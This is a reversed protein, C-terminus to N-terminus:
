NGQLDTVLCEDRQLSNLLIGDLLTYFRINFVSVTGTIFAPMTANCPVPSPLAARAWVETGQFCCGSPPLM